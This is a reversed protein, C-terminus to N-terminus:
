IQHAILALVTDIKARGYEDLPRLVPLVLLPLVCRSITLSWSLYLSLLKHIRSWKFNYPLSVLGHGLYIHKGLM